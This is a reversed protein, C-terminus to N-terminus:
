NNRENQKVEKNRLYLAYYALILSGVGFVSAFLFNIRLTLTIAAGCILTGISRGLYKSCDKLNNFEFQDDERFRNVYPGDSVHEYSDSMLKLFVIAILSFINNNFIFALIFLLTRTFFKITLNIYNNKFTIKALVIAGIIASAIGLLMIISSSTVPGYEFVETFVLLLVGVVSYYSVNAMFAYGLYVVTIKDNKMKKILDFSNKKIKNDSKYKDLKITYELIIAGLLIVIAILLFSNYNINISGLAKGILFITIFSGLYYMIDYIITRSAYVKDNKNVMSMMPYFCSYCEVDIVYEMMILFKIITNYGSKYLLFMLFTLLLKTLLLGISFNKLKDKRVLSSCLFLTFIALVACISYVTSISQVSLSNTRLWLEQFNYGIGSALSYLALVIFLKKLDKNM